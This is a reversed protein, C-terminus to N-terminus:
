DADLAQKYIEAGGIIFTHSTLKRAESVAEELSGVYIVGPIKEIDKNRTIVVNHRDPLPKFRKPLSDFTKRGMIVVPMTLKDSYTTKEKFYEMDKPQKKWPIKNANGIVGNDSVAVIISIQM